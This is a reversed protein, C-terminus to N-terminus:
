ENCLNFTCLLLLVYKWHQKRENATKRKWGYNSYFSGMSRATPWFRLFGTFAEKNESLFRFNISTSIYQLLSEFFKYLFFFEDFNQTVIRLKCCKRNTAHTSQVTQWNDIIKDTHQMCLLKETQIPLGTPILTRNTFQQLYFERSLVLLCSVPSANMEYLTISGRFSYIRPFNQKESKRVSVHM